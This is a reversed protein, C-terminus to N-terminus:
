KGNPSVGKIEYTLLIVKFNFIEKENECILKIEEKEPNQSLIKCDLDHSSACVPISLFILFLLFKKM